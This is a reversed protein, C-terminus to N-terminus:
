KDHSFLTMGDSDNTLPRQMPHAERCLSTFNDPPPLLALATKKKERMM